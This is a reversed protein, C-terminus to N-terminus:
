RRRGVVATRIGDHHHEDLFAWVLVVVVTMLLALGAIAELEFLDVLVGATAVIEMVRHYRQQSGRSRKRVTEMRM